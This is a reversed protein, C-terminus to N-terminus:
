RLPPSIHDVVFVVEIYGAEFDVLAATDKRSVLPEAAHEPEGFGFDHPVVNGIAVTVAAVPFGEAAAVVKRLRLEDEAHAVALPAAELAAKRALNDLVFVALYSEAVRHAAKTFGHQGLLRCGDGLVMGHHEDVLAGVAAFLHAHIREGLGAHAHKAVVACGLGIGLGEIESGCLYLYPPPPPFFPPLFSFFCM